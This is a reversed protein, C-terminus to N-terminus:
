GKRVDDMWLLVKLTKETTSSWIARGGLGASGWKIPSLRAYICPGGKCARAMSLVEAVGSVAPPPRTTAGSQGQSHRPPPVQGVRGTKCRGFGGDIGKQPWWGAGRIEPAAAPRGCRVPLSAGRM